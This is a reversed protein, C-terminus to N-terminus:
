PTGKAKRRPLQTDRKRTAKPATTLKTDRSRKPPKVPAEAAKEAEGYLPLKGLIYKGYEPHSPDSRPHQIGSAATRAELDDWYDQMESDSLATM